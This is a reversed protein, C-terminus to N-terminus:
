FFILCSDAFLQLAVTPRSRVKSFTQKPVAYENIKPASDQGRRDIKEQLLKPPLPLSPSSPTSTADTRADTDDNSHSPSFRASSTPAPSPTPSECSAPSLPPGRSSGNDVGTGTGAPRQAAPRTAPRNTPTPAPPPGSRPYESGDETWHVPPKRPAPGEKQASPARSPKHVAVTEWPEMEEDDEDLDDESGAGAGAKGAASSFSSQKKMSNKRILLQDTAVVASDVSDVSDADDAAHATSFSRARPIGGLSIDGSLTRQRDHSLASLDDTSYLVLEGHAAAILLPGNRQTMVTPDWRDVKSTVAGAVSRSSPSAPAVPELEDPYAPPFCCSVVPSAFAQEGVRILASKDSDDKKIGIAAENASAIKEPTFIHVLHLTDSAALVIDGGSAAFVDGPGSGFGLGSRSPTGLPSQPLGSNPFATLTVNIIPRESAQLLSHLKSGDDVVVKGATVAASTGDLCGLIEMFDLKWLYVMGVSTGAALFISKAASSNASATAAATSTSDRPLLSSTFRAQGADKTPTSSASMSAMRNIKALVYRDTYLYANLSLVHTTLTDLTMAPVMTIGTSSSCTVRWIRVSRDVSGTALAYNRANNADGSSLIPLWQLSFIPGPHAVHAINYTPLFKSFSTAATHKKRQRENQKFVSIEDLLRLLLLRVKGNEDGSALIHGAPSVSLATIRSQHSSIEMVPSGFIFGPIDGRATSALLPQMPYPNNEPPPLATYMLKQSIGLLFILEDPRDPITTMKDWHHNVTKEIQSDTDFIPTFRRFLVKFRESSKDEVNFAKLEGNQM